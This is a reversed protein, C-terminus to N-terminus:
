NISVLSTLESPLDYGDWISDFDLASGVPTWRSVGLTASAIALDRIETLQFGFHTATQDHERIFPLIDALTAVFHVRLFGGGVRQERRAPQHAIVTTLEANRWSIATAEGSAATAFSEVMKRMVHGTAPKAGRSRAEVNLAELMAEVSALHREADGIVHLIHPSSCAM